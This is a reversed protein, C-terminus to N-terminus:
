EEFPLMAHPDKALLKLLKHCWDFEKMITESRNGHIVPITAFRYLAAQPHGLETLYEGMDLHWAKWNLVDRKDISPYNSHVWEDWESDSEPESDGDYIIYSALERIRQEVPYKDVM